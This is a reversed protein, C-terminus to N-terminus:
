LRPSSQEQVWAAYAPLVQEPQLLLIEPVAYPHLQRLAEMLATSGKTTTKLWAMVEVEECLQGQWYYLSEVQPILNVCAALHQEVLHKSIERAKEQNPFTTVVIRIDSM